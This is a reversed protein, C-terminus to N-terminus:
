KRKRFVTEEVAGGSGWLHGCVRGRWEGSMVSCEVEEACFGERVCVCRQEVEEWFRRGMFGKGCVCVCGHEVHEQFRAVFGWFGEELFGLGCCM